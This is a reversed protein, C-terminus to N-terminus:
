LDRVHLFEGARDDLEGRAVQGLASTWREVPTWDEEAPDRLEPRHALLGEPFGETMDTRVMGPSIAFVSVGTGELEAQVSAVLAHVAAKAAGYGSAWPSPRAGMGSGLVVVRGTGREVMGPLVAALALAPGRLDVEVDRWWEGLDAEWLPGGSAFRGASLVALRLPGLEAETRAVAARVAAEDTADGPLALAAEGADVVEQLPGASRATVAVKRGMATLTAAAARGLGRSGGTVLASM